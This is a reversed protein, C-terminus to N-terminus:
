FLRREVEAIEEREWKETLKEINEDLRGGVLILEYVPRARTGEGLEHKEPYNEGYAAEFYGGDVGFVMESPGFRAINGPHSTSTAAQIYNDDRRLMTKGPHTIEKEAAYIPDLPPWEGRGETEFVEASEGAVLPALFDSFLRTRDTLRSELETVYAQLKSLGDIQIDFM